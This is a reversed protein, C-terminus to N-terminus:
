AAPTPVLCSAIAWVGTLVLLGYALQRLRKRSLRSGLYLGLATGALVAPITFVGQGMLRLAPRGGASLYAFLRLPVFAAAIATVTVRTREQPWAHAHVWLVLPPGGIGALGSLLGSGAGALPSWYWAVRERPEVRALWQVAVFVLVGAGVAARIASRDVNQTAELLWAGVPITAMAVLTPVAIRRWPISGRLRLLVQVIMASGGVMSVLVAQQMTLGALLLLPLSIVAFGFGVGAQVLATFGLIAATLLM